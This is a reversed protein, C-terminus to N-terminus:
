LLRCEECYYVLGDIKENIDTAVCKWLCRSRYIYKFDKSTHIYTYTHLYNINIIILTRYTRLFRRHYRGAFQLDNM